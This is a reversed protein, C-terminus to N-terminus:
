RSLPNVVSGIMVAAEREWSGRTTSRGKTLSSPPLQSGRNVCERLADRVKDKNSRLTRASVGGDKLIRQVRATMQTAMSRWFYSPLSSTDLSHLVPQLLNLPERKSSATSGLENNHILPHPPSKITDLLMELAVINQCRASIELLTRDLRPLQSLGGSLGAVSSTIARRLYEQLASVLLAAELPANNLKPLPSLLYLATLASTARSRTDETQAFTTTPRPAAATSAESIQATLSSMSFQSIIQDARAVLSREAPDVLETKM